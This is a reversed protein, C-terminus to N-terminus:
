ENDNRNRRKFGSWIVDKSGDHIIAVYGRELRYWAFISGVCLLIEIAYIFLHNLNSLKSLEPTRNIILPSALTYVYILITTARTVRILSRFNSIYNYMNENKTSIIRVRREQYQIRDSFKELIIKIDFLHFFQDCVRNWIIGIVYAAILQYQIDISKFVLFIQKIDINFIISVIPAFTLFFLYGVIIIEVLLTTTTM